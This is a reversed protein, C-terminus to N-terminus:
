CRRLTSYDLRVDPLSPSWGRVAAVINAYGWVVFPVRVSCFPALKAMAGPTGNELVNVLPPVSVSRDYGPPPAFVSATVPLIKLVLAPTTFTLPVPSMIVAVLWNVLPPVIWNLPVEPVTDDVSVNVFEAKPITVM